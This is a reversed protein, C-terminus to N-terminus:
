DVDEEQDSGDDEGYYSALHEHKFSHRCNAKTCTDSTDGATTFVAKAFAKAGSRAPAGGGEDEEEGEDDSDKKRSKQRSDELECKMAKTQWLWARFVAEGVEGMQVFQRMGGCARAVIVGERFCVVAPLTQTRLTKLLGTGEAGRVHVAVFSTGRYEPALRRLHRALTVEVPEEGGGREKGDTPCLLAVAYPQTVVLMELKNAPIEVLQGYCVEPLASNQQQQQQQQNSGNRMQNMRQDRIQLYEFDEEAASLLKDIEDESDSEGSSEKAKREQKERIRRDIEANKASREADDGCCGCGHDHRGGDGVIWHKNVLTGPMAAIASETTLYLTHQSNPAEEIM